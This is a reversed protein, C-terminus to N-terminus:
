IPFSTASVNVIQSLPSLGSLAFFIVRSLIEEYIYMIGCVDVLEKVEYSRTAEKAGRVRAYGELGQRIGAATIPFGPADPRLQYGRVQESSAPGTGTLSEYEGNKYVHFISM